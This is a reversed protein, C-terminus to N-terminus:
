VSHHKTRETEMKRRNLQLRTIEILPYSASPTLWFPFPPCPTKMETEHVMCAYFLWKMLLMTCVDIIPFHENLLNTLTGSLSWQHPPIPHPHSVPPIWTSKWQNTAVAVFFSEKQDPYGTCTQSVGKLCSVQYLTAEYQAHPYVETLVFLVGGGFPFPLPCLENDTMWRDFHLFSQIWFDLKTYM